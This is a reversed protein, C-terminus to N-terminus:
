FASNEADGIKFDLLAQFSNEHDNGFEEQHKLRAQYSLRKESARLAEMRLSWFKRTDEAEKKRAAADKEEQEKRLRYSALSRLMAERNMYMVLKKYMFCKQVLALDFVARNSIDAIQKSILSIALYNARILMKNSSKFNENV